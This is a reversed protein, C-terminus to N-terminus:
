GKKKKPPKCEKCFDALEELERRVGDHLSALRDEVFRLNTEEAADSHRGTLEKQLEYYLPEFFGISSFAGKNEFMSKRFKRSYLEILDFEYRAFNLLKEMSSESDALIVAADPVFITNVKANFNKTLMFEANSMLFSFDMQASSNIYNSQAGVKTKSSAFDKITLHYDPSWHIRQQAIAGYTTLCISLFFIFFKLM